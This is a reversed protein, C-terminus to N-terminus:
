QAFPDSLKAPRKPKSQDARIMIIDGSASWEFGSNTCVTNIADYLSINRRQLTVRPVPYYSRQRAFSKAASEEMWSDSPRRTVFPTILPFTVSYSNTQSFEMKPIIIRKMKLIEQQRRTLTDKPGTIGTVVSSITFVKEKLTVPEDEILKFPGARRGKSDTLFFEKPSITEFVPFSEPLKQKSYDSRILLNGKEDITIKAPLVGSLAKFANFISINRAKFTLVPMPYPSWKDAEVFSDQSNLLINFAPPVDKQKADATITVLSTIVEHINAKHFEVKPLITKKLRNVIQLEPRKRPGVVIRSVLFAHGALVLQEGRRLQFPGRKKGKSDTLCFEDALASSLLTFILLASIARKTM